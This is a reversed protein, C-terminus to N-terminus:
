DMRYIGTQLAYKILGATNKMGTKKLLRNRHGDITRVSLNLEEAMEKNTYEKCILKLIEEERSSLKESEQAFSHQFKSQESIDKRMANFTHQSVYYQGNDVAHIAELVEDIDADKLIYGYVGSEILEIVFKEHEHMSLVIIKIDSFKPNNLLVNSTELGDMVPMELDLLVIDPKQVELMSLLEKGNSAEKISVNELREKLLKILGQRFLQHDDVIILKLNNRM